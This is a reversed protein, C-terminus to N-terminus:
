FEQATVAMDQFIFVPSAEVQNEQYPYMWPLIPSTSRIESLDVGELGGATRANDSNVKDIISQRHTVFNDLASKWGDWEVVLTVGIEWRTQSAKTDQRGSFDDAASIIIYPSLGRWQDYVSFDNIVVDANSFASLGQFETQLGSLIAAETAM